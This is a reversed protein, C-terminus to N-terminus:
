FLARSIKSTSCIRNISRLQRHRQDQNHLFYVFLKLTYLMYKKSRTQLSVWPLYSFSALYLSYIIWYIFYWSLFHRSSKQSFLNLRFKSSPKTPREFKEFDLNSKPLQVVMEKKWFNLRRNAPATSKQSPPSRETFGSSRRPSSTCWRSCSQRSALPWPWTSSSRTHSSTPTTSSHTSMM